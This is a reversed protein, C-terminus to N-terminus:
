ISIKEVDDLSIDDASHDYLKTTRPSAHAAINQAGELTGNNAMFATIGTARLSHNGLRLTAIGAAKARRRIMRFSDLRSMPKRTLPMGPKGPATRFLPGDSDGALGAAGIYEDLYKELNHHCPVEHEKGGKEHLRVRSRRGLVYYDRVKMGIAASVRAFTYTMTAILARDRLGVLTTTEISDLLARAEDSALYPTKGKRVVHRPGRVAHAPNVDIIHGTVLWDFLMRLAALNQKVTPPALQEQLDKIFAAMHFPRVQSLERIGHDECWQTFRKTAILYASRTNDNNIQATFFELVREAAKATPAFLRDPVLAEAPTLIIENHAM